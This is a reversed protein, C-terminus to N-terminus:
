LCNLLALLSLHRQWLLLPRTQDKAQHPVSKGGPDESEDASGFQLYQTLSLATHPNVLVRTAGGGSSNLSTGVVTLPALV